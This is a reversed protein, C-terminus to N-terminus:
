EDPFRKGGDFPKLEMELFFSYDLPVKKKKSIPCVM